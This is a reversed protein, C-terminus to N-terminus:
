TSTGETSPVSIGKGVQLCSRITESLDSLLFPKKLFIVREALGPPLESEPPAYGSVVIFQMESYRGAVTQVLELGQVKGPMVVDTIILAPNFDQRLLSIAEDGSCATTVSHGESSLHRELIELLELEDEVVMIESSSSQPLEQHPFSPSGKEAPISSSPLILDVVTGSGLRSSIRVGGGSQKAFGSVMALGLGSGEGLPKSSVYPEIVSDLVKPDIGIGNDCVTIKVLDRAGDELTSFGEFAEHNSYKEVAIEIQGKGAVADRANIVLNVIASHLANEDAYIPPTETAVRVQIDITEPMLRVLVGELELFAVEVDISKATLHSQRGFALLKQTLIAGRQGAQLSQSILEEKPVVTSGDRLLELNGSIISLLNNFDHAIGGSLSGLTELRQAQLLKQQASVHDRHQRTAEAISTLFYVTMAFAISFALIGQSYALPSLIFDISIAFFVASNPILYCLMVQWSKSRILFTNLTAGVMYALAAYRLLADGNFWLFIPLCAAVSAICLSLLLHGFYRRRSSTGHHRALLVKELVILGYNVTFWVPIQWMGLFIWAAFSCAAVLATQVVLEFSFLTEMHRLQALKDKYDNVNTNDPM